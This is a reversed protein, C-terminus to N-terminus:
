GEADRQEIQGRFAKMTDEYLSAVKDVIFKIARDEAEEMDETNLCVESINLSKCTLYWTDGCHIIKHVTVPYPEKLDLITAQSM